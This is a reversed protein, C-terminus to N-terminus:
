HHNAQFFSNSTGYLFAHGFPALRSSIKPPCFCLSHSPTVPPDSIPSTISIHLFFALLLYVAALNRECHQRLKYVNVLIIALSGEVGCVVGVVVRRQRGRGGQIHIVGVRVICLVLRLEHVIGWSVFVGRGGYVVLVVCVVRGVVVVLGPAGGDVVMEVGYVGGGEGDGELMRVLERREVWVERGGEGGRVGVGGDTGVIVVAGGRRVGARGGGARGDGEREGM